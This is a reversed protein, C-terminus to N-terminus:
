LVIRSESFRNIVDTIRAEYAADKSRFAVGGRYFKIFVPRGEEALRDVLGAGNAAGPFVERVNVADDGWLPLFSRTLGSDVILGVMDPREDDNLKGDLWACRYSKCGAPRDEYIACCGSEHRCSSWRQKDLAIVGLVHCCATCSGCARSM